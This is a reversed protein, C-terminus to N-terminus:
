DIKLIREMEKMQAKVKKRESADLAAIEAVRLKHQMKMEKMHQRERRRQEKRNRRNRLGNGLGRFVWRVLLFPSALLMFPARFVHYTINTTFAHWRPAEDGAILGYLFAFVWLGILLLIIEVM